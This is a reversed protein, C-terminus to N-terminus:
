EEIGHSIKQHQQLAFETEFTDHCVPCTPKTVGGPHGEEWPKPGAKATTPGGRGGRLTPAILYGVIVGALAGIVAMVAGVSAPNMGGIVGSKSQNFYVAGTTLEVTINESTNLQGYPTGLSLVIVYNGGQVAPWIAAGGRTSTGPVLAGVTFVPVTLSAATDFVSLSANQIYQGSYSYAITVNGVPVVSNAAPGNIQATLPSFVFYTNVQAAISGSHNANLWVIIQYQGPPLTDAGSYFHNMNLMTINISQNYDVVGKHIKESLNVVQTCPRLGGCGGTVYRLEVSQSFTHNNMQYGPIELTWNMLFPLATYTSQVNLNQIVVSGVVFTHTKTFTHGLSDTVVVVLYHIGAHLNASGTLNGNAAFGTQWNPPVWPTLDGALNGDVYARVTNIHELGYGWNFGYGNVFPDNSPLNIKVGWSVNSGLGFFDRQILATTQTFADIPNPLVVIPVSTYNRQFTNNFQCTIVPNINPLTPACPETYSFTRNSAGPVSAAVFAQYALGYPSMYYPLGTQNDPIYISTSGDGQTMNWTGSTNTVGNLGFSAQYHNFKNEGGIDLNALWVKINGLPAGTFDNTVIPLREGAWTYLMDYYASQNVSNPVWLNETAPSVRQRLNTLLFSVTDFHSYKGGYNDTTGINPGPVVQYTTSATATSYSANIFFTTPQIVNWTYVLAYGSVNTFTQSVIGFTKEYLRGYSDTVNQMRSGQWALSYPSAVSADVLANYVPKGNYTVQVTITNPYLPGAIPSIVVPPFYLGFGPVTSFQSYGGVTSSQSPQVVTVTLTGGTPLPQSIWSYDFGLTHNQGNGFEFIVLGPSSFPAVSTNLTFRLGVSPTLTPTLTPRFEQAPGGNSPIFKVTVNPQTLAISASANVDVTYSNNLVMNAWAGINWANGASNTTMFSGPLSELQNLDVAFNYVNISGWGTPFDFGAMTNGYTPSDTGNMPFKQGPPWAYQHSVGRNGWYSTGNTVDYFPVLTLNGNWYANAVWWVPVNADGLYSSHGHARLYDEILALEGATTPCAFSTGGYFFQFGGDFFITQNFDAEAAVSSGLSRGLDPVGIGHQWWSQNFWYSTGFGGSGDPPLTTLTTNSVPEYWYSQYAMKTATAIHNPYNSRTYVTINAIGLNTNYPFVSGSNDTEATRVGDVSLVYPDTAPFSGALIGTNKDFGGGDASSALISAGRADLLEFYYHLTQQNQFNPGYLNGSTDEDGGWSNSIIQPTSGMNYITAYDDDLVNFCLCPGYVPMIHAGPAMTSSYEIDLAMEGSAGDTYTQTGNLIFSGDVPVVSLRSLINNPNNWVLQGYARMDDPNIGGAMIIAITIPTGTSNGNFGQNILQTGNYVYTLSGPTITQWTFYKQRSHSYFYMWMFAHNTFNFVQSINSYSTLASALATTGASGTVDQAIAPDVFHTPHAVQNNDLGNVSAIGGAIASPLALPGTNMASASGDQFQVTSMQTKFATDVMSATGTFSVSIGGRVGVQFGLSTYYNITNQVEVPDASFMQNEQELTLWHHFMPSGPTQQATLLQELGNLNRPTFGITFHQVTTAAIPTTSSVNHFTQFTDSKTTVFPGHQLQAGSLVSSATAPLSSTSTSRAPANSATAGGVALLLFGGSLMLFVAFVVVTSRRWSARNLTPMTSRFATAVASM